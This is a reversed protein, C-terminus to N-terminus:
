IIKELLHQLASEPDKCFSEPVTKLFEERNDQFLLISKSQPFSTIESEITRMSKVDRTSGILVSMFYGGEDHRWALSMPEIAELNQYLEGMVEHEKDKALPLWKESAKGFLFVSITIASIDSTLIQNKFYRANVLNVNQMITRELIAGRLDVNKLDAGTLNVESLNKECFSSPNARCLLTAANGGLFQTSKMRDFRTSNLWKWLIENNLNLEGLFDAVVPDIRQISLAKPIDAEIEKLLSCAIVYEM